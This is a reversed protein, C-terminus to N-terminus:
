PGAPRGPRGTSSSIGHFGDIPPRAGFGVQCGDAPAAMGHGGNDHAVCRRVATYSDHDAGQCGWIQLGTQHNYAFECDEFTIHHAGDSSFAAPMLDAFQFSLNSVVVYSRGCIRLIGETSQPVEIPGPTGADCRVYITSFGLGDKDGWGWQGDTLSGATGKLLRTPGSKYWLWGPRDDLDNGPKRYGPSDGSKVLYYENTGGSSGVWECGDEDSAKSGKLIPKAGQGYSGFNITAGETGSYRVVVTERWVRGAKFLVSDGPSLSTANVKAVSKWPASESTGPNADDGGVSDVYYVNASSESPESPISEPVSPEGCLDESSGGAALLPDTTGSISGALSQAGIIAFPVILGLLLAYEVMNQGSRGLLRKLPQNM